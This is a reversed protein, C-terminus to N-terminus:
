GEIARERTNPAPNDACGGGKHRARSSDALGICPIKRGDAVIHTGKDLRIWFKPIYVASFHLVTTSDTLEIRNVDLTETTYFDVAPYEVVNTERKCGAAISVLLLSLGIIRKM